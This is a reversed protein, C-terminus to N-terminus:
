PTSRDFLHRTMSDLSGTLRKSSQHEIEDNGVPGTYFGDEIMERQELGHFARMWHIVDPNEIDRMPGFTLM